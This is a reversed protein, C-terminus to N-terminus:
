RNEDRGYYQATTELYAATEAQTKHSDERLNGIRAFVTM